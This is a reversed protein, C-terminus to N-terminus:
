LTIMSVIGIASFIIGLLTRVLTELKVYYQHPNQPNYHIEVEQGISYPCSSSGSSSKKVYVTDNVSYEFVPYFMIEDNRRYGHFDDTSTNSTNWEKVIDIVKGQVTSTCKKKKLISLAVLFLGGLFFILGIIKPNM